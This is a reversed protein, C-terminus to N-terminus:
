LPLHSLPKLSMSSGIDGARNSRLAQYPEVHMLWLTFKVVKLRYCVAGSGKVCADTELRFSEAFNPVPSVTLSKKLTDFAQQCDTSWEFVAGKRTLAHFPEAIKM